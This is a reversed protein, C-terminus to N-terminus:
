EHTCGHERQTKYSSYSLEYLLQDESMEGKNTQFTMPRSLANLYDSFVPHVHDNNM